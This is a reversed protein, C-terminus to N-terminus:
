DAVRRIEDAQERKGTLRYTGPGIGNAGHEDTHILYATAGKAVDLVGLLVSGARAPAPTWTCPGEAHLWHTNGGTAAEGRVVAVGTAPVPEASAVEAVGLPARPFIAVDGQRQPGTLVPVEADAALGEPITVDYVTLISEFTHTMTTM